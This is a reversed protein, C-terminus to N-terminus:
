KFTIFVNLISIQKGPAVEKVTSYFKKSGDDLIITESSENVM